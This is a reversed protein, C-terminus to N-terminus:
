TAVPLARFNYLVFWMVPAAFLLGDVRDLFGGHGPLLKGSDKVGCFRKLASEILDGMQGAVGGLISTLAIVEWSALAGGYVMNVVLGGAISALIGAIAGEWTKKPSITPALRNRGWYSGAFYAGTDGSWVVALLLMVFRSGSGMQYLDWISLWPLAGYCVSFLLALMHAGRREVTTGSFAGLLISALIGAVTMGREAEATGALSGAFVFVALLAAVGASAKSTAPISGESAPDALAVLKPTLMLYSEICGVAVCAIFLPVLLWDLNTAFAFILLPLGIVATLVRQKLM